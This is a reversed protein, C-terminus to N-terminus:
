ISASRRPGGGDPDPGTGSVLERDVSWGFRQTDDGGPLPGDISLIDGQDDYTARTTASLSGDGAARTVSTIRENADYEFTTRNEDATGDCSSASACASIRSVRSVGNGADAYSYRVQPRVAGAAPAPLTVTAVQGGPTYTFDTQNGREDRTWVPQNCAADMCSTPYEASTAVDATGSGPRARRTVATVNGRADYSYQVKNGLPATTESLRGQADYSSSNTQGLPDTVSTPRFLGLDSVIRTSRGLADTVVMTATNGSVGYSYQTTVGDQTISSVKQAGDRAIITTDSASGPRRVGVVPGNSSITWTKGGPTTLTLVGNAPRSYSVVRGPGGTVENRFTATTRNFWAPPPNDHYPATAQEYDFDIGYGSTNYVRNVRWTSSCILPSGDSPFESPCVSHIDWEMNVTRGTRGSISYALLFCNGDVSPDGSCLSGGVGETNNFEIVTGDLARYTMQSGNNDLTAGTGRISQAYGDTSSFSDYQDGLVITVLRNNGSPGSTAYIQTWNDQSGSYVVLPLEAEGSGISAVPLRLNYVGTTLDVGNEDLNPHPSTQAMVPAVLLGSCLITSLFLAHKTWLRGLCTTKM